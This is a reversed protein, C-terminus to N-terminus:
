GYFVKADTPRDMVTVTDLRPALDAETDPGAIAVTARYDEFAVTTKVLDIAVLGRLPEIAVFTPLEEDPAVSSGSRFFDPLISVAASLTKSIRKSISRSITVTRTFTKGIRKSISRSITVTRTFTKGIRKSISRSITVTRTFTKGIRKSISRSITVTRTFTKGIRKSISRSITVTRTFTKGVSKTLSRNITVTRTFTKGIGKTFSRSITVTRTLNVFVTRSKAFVPTIAVSDSLTKGIRKSISRSITVTRTFTKGVGKALSRSITISDTLTKGIGKSVSGTVGVNATLPMDIVNSTTPVMPPWTPLRRMMMLKIPLPTGPRATMPDHLGFMATMTIVATGITHTVSPQTGSNVVVNKHALEPGDAQDDDETWGAAPSMVQGQDNFAVTALYTNDSPVSIGPVLVNLSAANSNFSTPALPPRQDTGSYAYIGWEPVTAGTWTITPSDTATGDAVRWLMVVSWLETAQQQSPIVVSWGTVPLNIFPGPSGTKFVLVLTDGPVRTAPATVAQSTGSAGIGHAAARLGAAM